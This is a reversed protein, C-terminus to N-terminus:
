AQTPLMARAPNGIVTAGAPVDKTVVAGMGITAGGGIRLPKATTGQKLFAGTGVYVDDEIIVNGNCNVRPAFTVYNGIVCDHAVYSYINCHFHRGIRINSTCTTYGCFVAGDGVCVDTLRSHTPAFISGFSLGASECQAAIARRTSGSAIALCVQRDRNDPSTLETFSLVPLGNIVRGQEDVIDSVFVVDANSAQAIPAIERGFGGCGYIALRTKMM